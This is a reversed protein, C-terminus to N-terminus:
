GEGKGTPEVESLITDAMAQGVAMFDSLDGGEEKHRNWRLASVEMERQCGEGEPLPGHPKFVLGNRKIRELKYGYGKIPVIEGEVFIPGQDAAKVKGTADFERRLEEEAEEPNEQFKDLLDKRIDAMALENTRTNQM